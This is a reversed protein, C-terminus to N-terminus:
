YEIHELLENIILNSIFLKDEKIKISEDDVIVSEKNLLSKIQDKFRNKFDFGFREQYKKFNIGESLRLNLMIYEFEEEEKSILHEERNINNSIYLSINKSTDYRVNGEYGSSSPGIGIYREDHWYILNQKSMFNQKAFNSIEYHIFGAKKLELCILDFQDSQTDDDLAEINRVKFFTHDEVLLAYTSIHPVNWEVYKKIDYLLNEKTQNPLGYMLDLNINIIGKNRLKYIIEEVLNEDHHRNLLKLLDNNLTQVGFSVRNIGYKVLLDIKEDNLDEPNLEICFEGNNLLHNKASKLLKELQVTDLSSPSGGGIYISEVKKDILDLQAITTELYGDALKKNYLVKCFDCYACIHTCFPVHIYIGKVESNKM